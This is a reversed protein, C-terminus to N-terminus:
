KKTAVFAYSTTPTPQYFGVLDGKTNIGNVVTEGVGNPDDVTTWVPKKIPNTLTFGHTAGASDVYSGVIEDKENIGLPNTQMAGPYQITTFNKMKLLFGVVVNSSNTYFGVTDDMDDIGTAQLNSGGTPPVIETFMSDALNLRYGHNNGSSDTYFGVALGHDNIGLLQNFSGGGNANDSYSVFTNNIYTFGYNNGAKDVWFGATGGNENIATVQTMTSGPFNESSFNSPGYPAVVTYGKNPSQKTGVGFYGAIEGSDNIGLLQNFNPDGSNTVPTFTYTTSGQTRVDASQAAQKSAATLSQSPAPALASGAGSCAALLPLLALASLPQVSRPLIRM